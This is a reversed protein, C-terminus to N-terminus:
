KQRINIKRALQRGLRIAVAGAFCFCAIVSIAQNTPIDARFSWYMGSITSFLGGLIAILMVWRMRKALLLGASPTVVLFCFILIAGAVKSAASVTMGLAFFYMLEWLAVRIGITKAYERDLFTYLTPRIFAICYILVPVLVGLILALDENSTLILDGYLLAKVEHLGFGSKSVVLVALASTFVFIVGLVADRPIRHSEFPFSLLTVALLTLSIAGLFPKMHYAMGLAIGCAAVESLTIGVFVVRKLITFVGLTACTISIVVGAALAHPFLLFVTKFDDTMM